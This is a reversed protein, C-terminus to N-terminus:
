EPEQDVPTFDKKLGCAELCRDDEHTRFYEAYLSCLGRRAAAQCWGLVPPRPKTITIDYYSSKVTQPGDKDITASSSLVKDRARAAKVTADKRMLAAPYIVYDFLASEMDDEGDFQDRKHVEKRAEEREAEHTYGPRRSMTHRKGLKTNPMFNVLFSELDGMPIVAQAPKPCGGDGGRRCKVAVAMEERQRETLMWVANSGGQVLPPTYENAYVEPSVPMQLEVFYLWWQGCENGASLKRPVASPQCLTKTGREPAALSGPIWAMDFSDGVIDVSAPHFFDGHMRWKATKANEESLYSVPVFSPVLFPSAPLSTDNDILGPASAAAALDASAQVFASVARMTVLSSWKLSVYLDHDDSSVLDASQTKGNSGAKQGEPPVSLILSQSRREMYGSKLDHCSAAEQATSAVVVQLPSPREELVEGPKRDMPWPKGGCNVLLSDMWEVWSPDIPECVLLQVRAAIIGTACMADIEQLNRQLHPVASEQESLFPFPGENHLPPPTTEWIMITGRGAGVTNLTFLIRCRDAGQTQSQGFFIDWTSGRSRDPRQASGMALCNELLRTRLTEDSAYGDRYEKTGGLDEM